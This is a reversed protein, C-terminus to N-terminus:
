SVTVETIELRNKGDPTQPLSTFWLVLSATATPKSLTLVTDASLPGSALVPGTTPNASDTARVEVMGGAGNIHVTVATVTAQSALTLAFGIGPKGMNAQVYTRSYWFTAPNGDIARGVLDPHENNDGAPPPDLSAVSAITPAAGAAPTPATSQSASASPQPATASATPVVVSGSSSTRTGIPALLGKVAIIVAILVALIVVALILKTPDFRRQTLPAEEEQVLADFPTGTLGGPSFARPAPQPTVAPQFAGPQASSAVGPQAGSTAAPTTPLVSTRRPVAPQISPPMPPMPTAATAPPTVSPTAPPTVPTVPPVVPLVPPPGPEAGVPRTAGSRPPFAPPPTGPLNEGVSRETGFASRVSQRQVTGWSPSDPTAPPVGDASAAFPDPVPVPSRTVPGLLDASHIDGWPELERVLEAPSHPGDDHPGLTVACLTDLDNPVGAVLDAPPVPSGQVVPAPQMGSAQAADSRPDMPWRGTLAAYLMRVLSVTDARTTTRADGLGHGLLAGDLALGTILVRNSTPLHLVSPRLALHHVGRRRAIELAAAAEGVIARAQDAPMPGLAVVDALSPGTVQETIVYGVGEHHGVDLIRVLRPDTVLSARRAADLAQTVNGSALITVHVPRELIQDTASWASAGALFSTLQQLVRYRGALLTGRGVVDNV